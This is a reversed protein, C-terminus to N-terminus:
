VVYMWEMCPATAANGKQSQHQLMYIDLHEDGLSRIGMRICVKLPPGLPHEENEEQSPLHM